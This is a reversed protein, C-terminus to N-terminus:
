VILGILQLAEGGVDVDLVAAATCKFAGSILIDARRQIKTFEAEVQAWLKVPIKRSTPSYWVTIRYLLQPIIVTGYIHHM